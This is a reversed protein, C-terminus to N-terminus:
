LPTAVRKDTEITVLKDELVGFNVLQFAPEADGEM